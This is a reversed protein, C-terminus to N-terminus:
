YSRVALRALDVHIEVSSDAGDRIVDLHLHGGSVTIAESLDFESTIPSGNIGVIMDGIMLGAMDAPSGADVKQIGYASLDPILICDIGFYWSTAVIGPSPPCHIVRFHCPTWCDWYGPTVCYDWWHCHHIHWSYGVVFDLWWHCHTGLPLHMLAASRAQQYRKTMGIKTHYSSRDRIRSLNGRLERWNVQKTLDPKPGVRNRLVDKLQELGRNPKGPGIPLKGPLTVRPAGPKGIPLKGPLTVRPAGPKGIPSKGPLTVQPTGPKGIPSKGPLTVRNSGPKRVRTRNTIRTRGPPQPQPNFKLRNTKNTFSPQSRLKGVRASRRNLSPSSKLAQGTRSKFFNKRSSQAFIESDSIFPMMFCVAAISIKAPSFM